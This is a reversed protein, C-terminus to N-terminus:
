FGEFTWLDARSSPSAWSRTAGRASYPAPPPLEWPTQPIAEAQSREGAAGDRKEAPWRPEQLNVNKTTVGGLTGGGAKSPLDRM